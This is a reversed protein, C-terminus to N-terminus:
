SPSHSPGPLWALWRELAPSIPAPPITGKRESPRARRTPPPGGTPLGSQFAPVPAAEGEEFAEEFPFGSDPLAFDEPESELVTWAKYDEVLREHSQLELGSVEESHGDIALSSHLARPFTLAPPAPPPHDSPKPSVAGASPLPPFAIELPAFAEDLTAPPPATEQEVSGGPAPYAVQPHGDVTQDSTNSPLAEAAPAAQVAPPPPDPVSSSPILLPILWSRADEPQGDVTPGDPSDARELVAELTSMGFRHVCRQALLIAKPADRQQIAELLTQQWDPLSPRSSGSRSVDRDGSPRPSPFIM